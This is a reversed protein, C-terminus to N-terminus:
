ILLSKEMDSAGYTNILSVSVFFLRAGQRRIELDLGYRRLRERDPEVGVAHRAAAFEPQGRLM